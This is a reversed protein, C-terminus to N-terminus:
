VEATDTEVIVATMGLRMDATVKGIFDSDLAAM